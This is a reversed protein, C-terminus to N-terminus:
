EEEGEEYPIIEDILNLQLAEEPNIFWDFNMKQDYDYERMESNSELIKELMLSRFIKDWKKAEEVVRYSDKSHQSEHTNATGHHIMIRSHQAMRRTDGAQLMYAGMSMAHGYVDIVIPSVCAKMRDFIAMGHYECGGTNNMIVNIPEGTHIRDLVVLGKIAKEAMEYNVGSEAGEADSESGIYITRSPIDIGYQFFMEIDENDKNALKM